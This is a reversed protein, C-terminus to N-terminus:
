SLQQMERPLDRMGLLPSFVVPLSALASGVLGIWFVNRPGVQEGLVGGVFAGIPMVGWVLFRISANMRGLLPRPCLRQRFSVQTVNYVVVAFTILLSSVTLALMPPILTGALPMMLGAPIWFLSTLPITRGEGVIRNIRPTLLAGLLGGAAGGARLFHGRM